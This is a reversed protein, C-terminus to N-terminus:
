GDKLLQAITGDDLVVPPPAAWGDDTSGPYMNVGSVGRVPLLQPPLSGSLVREIRRGPNTPHRAQRM